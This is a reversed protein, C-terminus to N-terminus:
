NTQELLLQLAVIRVPACMEISCNHLLNILATEPTDHHNFDGIFVYAGAHTNVILRPPDNKEGSISSIATHKTALRVITEHSIRNMWDRYTTNLLFFM